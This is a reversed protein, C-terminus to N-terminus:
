HRASLLEEWSTWAIVRARGDDPPGFRRQELTTNLSVADFDLGLSQGTELDRWEIRLPYSGGSVSSYHTFDIELFPRAGGPRTRTFQVPRDLNDQRLRYPGLSDQGSIWYGGPDVGTTEPAEASSDPDGPPAIPALFLAQALRGPDLPAVRVQSKRGALVASYHPIDVWFSDARATLEFATVIGLHTFLRMRDPSEASISGELVVRDDLHSYSLVVEARVTRIGAGAVRTRPASDAAASAGPASDAARAAGAGPGGALLLLLALAPIGLRTNGAHRM